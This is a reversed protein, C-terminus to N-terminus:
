NMGNIGWGNEGEEENEEREAAVGVEPSSLAGNENWRLPDVTGM